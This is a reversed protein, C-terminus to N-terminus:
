PSIAAISQGHTERGLLAKYFVGATIHNGHSSPHSGDPEFLSDGRGASMETQWADGAAVVPLGGAHQSAAHYGERVRDTMSHFDDDARHRDGDRYGWTQYLVPTAGHSRAHEALESVAPFMAFQRKFYQSPIRSQEQLVVIDWAGERITRLTEEHNAHQELTWGGRTAQGVRVRQGNRAAIRKLEDPVGFSYSNGVFLVALPKGDKGGPKPINHSIPGNRTACAATLLVPIAILLLSLFRPKM